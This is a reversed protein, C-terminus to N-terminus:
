VKIIGEKILFQLAAILEDESIQKDGYWIFIKRVWELLKPKSELGVAEEITVNPYNKDFWAKYDPENYYRDLYYQPDKEPDVFAAIKTSESNPESSLEQEVSQTDKEPQNSTSGGTTSKSQDENNFQFTTEFWEGYFIKLTYTGEMKWKYGELPYSKTFKGDNNPLFQDAITIDSKGPNVIQLVIFQGENIPSVDGSITLRGGYDYTTKDTTISTASVNSSFFIIAFLLFISLFITVIKV